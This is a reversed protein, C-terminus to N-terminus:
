ERDFSGQSPGLWTAISERRKVDSATSRVSTMAEQPHEKSWAQLTEGFLRQNIDLIM